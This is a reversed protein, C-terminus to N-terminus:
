VNVNNSFNKSELVNILADEIIYIKNLYDKGNSNTTYLWIFGCLLLSVIIINANNNNINKVKINCGIEKDLTHQYLLISNIIKLIKREKEYIKDWIKTTYFIEIANFVIYTVNIVLIMLLFVMTATLDSVKYHGYFYGFIMFILQLGLSVPLVTGIVVKITIFNRISRKLANIKDNLINLNTEGCGQEQLINYIITYFKVKRKVYKRHTSEVIYAFIITLIILILIFQLLSFVLFMMDFLINLLVTIAIIILILIVINVKKEKKRLIINEHLQHIYDM